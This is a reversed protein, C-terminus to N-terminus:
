GVMWRELICYVVCGYGLSWSVVGIGFGTGWPPYMVATKRWTDVSWKRLVRDVCFWGLGMVRWRSNKLRVSTPGATNVPSHRGVWGGVDSKMDVIQIGHNM